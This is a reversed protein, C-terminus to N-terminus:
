VLTDESLSQHLTCCFTIAQSAHSILCTIRRARRVSFEQASLSHNSLEMLSGVSPNRQPTYKHHSFNQSSTSEKLPCLFHFNYRVERNVIMRSMSLIKSISNVLSTIHKLITYIHVVSSSEQKTSIVKQWDYYLVGFLTVM